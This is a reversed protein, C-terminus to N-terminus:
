REPSDWIQCIEGNSSNFEVHISGDEKLDIWAGEIYGPENEHPRRTSNGIIVPCNLGRCDFRSGPEIVFRRHIHGSLMADLEMGNLLKCWHDYIENEIDFVSGAEKFRCSFPVHCIAVRYKIGEARFEGSAAIEELMKTERVRFPHCCVAGHEGGYEEHDDNKDEGCDLVVGWLPGLRFTFYTKNDKTGIYRYLEPAMYGRTDHNGRTVVVPVEGHTLETLIEFQRLLCAVNDFEATDGNLVLLDTRDMYMKATRCPEDFMGHCDSLHYIRFGKGPEVPRFPYTRSVPDGLKPRYSCRDIMRRFWVTYSKESDLVDMPVNIKHVTDSRMLGNEEDYYTEAGITCWAVTACDTNFIIQYENEVACVIAGSAFCGQETIKEEM